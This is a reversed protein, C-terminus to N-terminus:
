DSVEPKGLWKIWKNDLTVLVQGTLKDIEDIHDSNVVVHADSLELNVLGKEIVEGTDTNKLEVSLKCAMFPAEAWAGGTIGEDCDLTLKIDTSDVSGKVVTRAMM